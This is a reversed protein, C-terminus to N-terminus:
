LDSSVDDASRCDRSVDDESIGCNSTEVDGFCGFSVNGM